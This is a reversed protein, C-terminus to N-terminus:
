VRGSALPSVPPPRGPLSNKWAHTGGSISACIPEDTAKVIDGTACTRPVLHRPGIFVTPASGISRVMLRARLRSSVILAAKGAFASPGGGSRLSRRQWKRRYGAGRRNLASSCGANRAAALSARLEILRRAGRQMTAGLGEGARNPQSWTASIATRTSVRRTYIVLLTDDVILRLTNGTM